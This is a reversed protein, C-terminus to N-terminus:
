GHPTASTVLFYHTSGAWLGAWLFDRFNNQAPGLHPYYGEPSPWSTSLLRGPQALIHTTTKRALGLHPYYDEPCDTTDKWSMLKAQFPVVLFFGELGSKPEPQYYDSGILSARPPGDRSIQLPKKFM